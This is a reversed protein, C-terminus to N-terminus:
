MFRHDTDQLLLHTQPRAMCATPLLKTLSTRLNIKNIDLHRLVPVKRNLFMLSVLSLHMKTAPFWPLLKVTVRVMSTKMHRHMYYTFLLIILNIYLHVSYTIDQYSRGILTLIKDTIFIAVVNRRNLMCVGHRWVM